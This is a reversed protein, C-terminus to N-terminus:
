VCTSLMKGCHQYSSHWCFDDVQYQCFFVWCFWHAKTSWQSKFWYAFPM